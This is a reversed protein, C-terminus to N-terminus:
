LRHHESSGTKGHVLVAPSPIDSYQASTTSERVPNSAIAIPASTEIIPTGLGSASLNQRDPLAFSQKAVTTLITGPRAFLGEPAVVIAEIKVKTNNFINLRDGAAKSLNIIRGLTYPGRDNVRVVLRRGNSLNTVRVYSPM